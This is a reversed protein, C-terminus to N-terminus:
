ALVEYYGKMCIPLNVFNLSKLLLCDLYGFLTTKYLKLLYMIQLAKLSKTTDGKNAKQLESVKVFTDVKYDTRFYM